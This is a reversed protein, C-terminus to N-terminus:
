GKAGISKNWKLTNSLTVFTSIGYGFAILEIQYSQSPRQCFVM